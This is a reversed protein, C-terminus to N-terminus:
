LANIIDIRSRLLGLLWTDLRIRMINIASATYHAPRCFLLPMVIIGSELNAM